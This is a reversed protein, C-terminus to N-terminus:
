SLTIAYGVHLVASGLMYPWSAPHPFPLFPALIAGALTTAVGMITMSWLRDEGGKLLANWSAHLMAAVLVLAPHHSSDM